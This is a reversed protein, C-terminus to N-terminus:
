TPMATKFSGPNTLPPLCEPMPWCSILLAFRSFDGIEALILAGMNASKVADLTELAAANEYTANGGYWVPESLALPTGALAEKLPEYAKSLATKGGIVAATKGFRRVISYVDKYCDPGM